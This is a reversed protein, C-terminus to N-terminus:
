FWWLEDELGDKWLQLCPQAGDVYKWQATELVVRYYAVVGPMVLWTLQM